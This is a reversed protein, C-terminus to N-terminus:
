DSSEDDAAADTSHLAALRRAEALTEALQRSEPEADEPPAATAAATSAAAADGSAATTATIAALDELDLSMTMPRRPEDRSSNGMRTRTVSTFLSKWQDPVNDWEFKGEKSMGIHSRHEQFRPESVEIDAAADGAAFKGAIARKINGLLESKRSATAAPPHPSDSSRVLTPSASSASSTTATTTASTASASLPPSSASSVATADTSHASLSRSLRNLARRARDIPTKKEPPQPSRTTPAPLAALESAVAATAADDPKASHKKRRRKSTPKLEALAALAREREDPTTARVHTAPLWGKAGDGCKVGLWWGTDARSTIHLLDGVVLGLEGPESAQFASSAAMLDDSDITPRPAPVNPAAAAILSSSSSSASEPV